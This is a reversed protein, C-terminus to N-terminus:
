VDMQHAPAPEFSSTNRHAIQRTTKTDDKTPPRRTGLTKSNQTCPSTLYSPLLPPLALSHPQRFQYRNKEHQGPMCKLRSPLFFFVHSVAPFWRCDSAQKGAKDPVIQASSNLPLPPRSNADAPSGRPHHNRKLKSMPCARAHRAKGEQRSETHHQDVPPHLTTTNTRPRKQEPKSLSWARTPNARKEWWM